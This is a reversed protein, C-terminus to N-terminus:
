FSKLSTSNRLHTLVSRRFYVADYELLCYYCEGSIEGATCKTHNSVRMGCIELTYIPPTVQPSVIKCPITLTDTSTSNGGGATVEWCLITVSYWPYQNYFIPQGLHFVQCFGKFDWGWNRGFRVLSLAETIWTGKWGKTQILGGLILRMTLVGEKTFSHLWCLTFFPKHSQLHPIM